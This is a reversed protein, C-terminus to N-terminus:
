TKWVTKYILVLPSAKVMVLTCSNVLVYNSHEQDRKERLPSRWPLSESEWMTSAM